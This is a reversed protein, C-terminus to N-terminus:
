LIGMYHLYIAAHSIDETHTKEIVKRRHNYVTNPSINLLRAIMDGNYGNMSMRTVEIQRPTPAGEHYARIFKNTRINIIFIGRSPNEANASSVPKLFMLVQGRRVGDAEYVVMTYKFLIRMYKGDRGLLRCEFVLVYDRINGVPVSEIYDFTKTWVDILHCIDDPIVLNFFDEFSIVGSLSAHFDDCCLSIFNYENRGANCLAITSGEVMALQMLHETLADPLIFSVDEM